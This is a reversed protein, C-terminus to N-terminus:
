ALTPWPVGTEVVTKSDHPEGTYDWGWLPVRLGRLARRAQGLLRHCTAPAQPTPLDSMLRVLLTVAIRRSVNEEMLGM